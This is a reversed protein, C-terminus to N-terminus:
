IAAERPARQAATQREVVASQSYRMENAYLVKQQAASAGDVYLNEGRRVVHKELMLIQGLFARDFSKLGSFDLRVDKGLAAARRFAKRASQLTPHGFHGFLRVTTFAAGHEVVAEAKADPAIAGAQRFQPALRTLGIKALAVGDEFYRRWLAPEEKIRWAWELGLRQVLKPARVIGGATFDVVAGLHAMVPAKLFPLNRDIWAQGKVAGLAVIIFDPDAKNIKDIVPQASMTEVNGFGPNHWGVAQLGGSERNLAETATKAANDRGGFFFVKLKGGAFGPRRRLAEFLDSGAVRSPVPVGLLKALAVLPAGDVLCLDAEIIERRTQSDRMARVLWNVNPTVFSLRRRASVARDIEATARDIDAIDVPIGLLCWVDRDFDDQRIAAVDSTQRNIPAVKDASQNPADGITPAPNVMLKAM